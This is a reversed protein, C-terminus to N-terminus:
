IQFDTIKFESLVESNPADNSQACTSFHNAIANAVDGIHPANMQTVHSPSILGRKMGSASILVNAFSWMARKPSRAASIANM